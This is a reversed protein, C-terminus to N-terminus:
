LIFWKGKKKNGTPELIKFKSYCASKKTSKQCLHTILLHLPCTMSSPTMVLSFPNSNNRLNVKM